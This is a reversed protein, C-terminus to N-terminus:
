NLIIALVTAFISFGIKILKYGDNNLNVYSPFYNNLIRLESPHLLIIFIM